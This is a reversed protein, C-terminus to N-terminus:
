NKPDGINFTVDTMSLFNVDEVNEKHSIKIMKNRLDEWETDPIANALNPDVNTEAIYIKTLDNDVKENLTYFVYKKTTSPIEIYAIGETEMGEGAKNIVKINDNM